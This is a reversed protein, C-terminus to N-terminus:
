LQSGVESRSCNSPAVVLGRGVDRDYAHHHTAAVHIFFILTVAFLQLVDSHGEHGKQYATSRGDFRFQLISASDYLHLWGMIDTPRDACEAVTRPYHDGTAALISQGPWYVSRQDSKGDTLRATEQNISRSAADNPPVISGEYVGSGLRVLGNLKVAWPSGHRLSGNNQTSSVVIETSTFRKSSSARVDYLKRRLSFHPRYILHWLHFLLNIHLNVMIKKKKQTKMILYTTVYDTVFSHFDKNVM